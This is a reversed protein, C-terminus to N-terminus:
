HLAHEPMAGLHLPIQIQKPKVSPYDFSPLTRNISNTKVASAPGCLRGGAGIRLCEGEPSRPDRKPLLNTKAVKSEFGFFITGRSDKKWRFV